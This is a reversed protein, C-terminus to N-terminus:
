PDGFVIAANGEGITGEGIKELVADIQALNMMAALPEFAFVFGNDIPGRKVPNLFEEFGFSLAALDFSGLAPRQELSFQEIVLAVPHARAKGALISDPIAEINTRRKQPSPFSCCSRHSADGGLGDLLRYHFGQTSLINVSRNVIGFEQIAM